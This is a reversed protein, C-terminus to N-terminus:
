LIAGINNMTPGPSWKLEDTLADLTEKTRQRCVQLM